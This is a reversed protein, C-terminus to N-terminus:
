SDSGVRDRSAQEKVREKLRPVVNKYVSPDIPLLWQITQAASSINVGAEDLTEDIQHMSFPIVNTGRAHKGGTRKEMWAVREAM